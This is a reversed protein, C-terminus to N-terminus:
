DLLGVAAFVVANYAAHAVFAPVTSGSKLRLWGYLVGMLFIVAVQSPTTGPKRVHAVAFAGAIAIVAV